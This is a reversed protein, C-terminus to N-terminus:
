EYRLAVIPDVRTSRWAPMAAAVTAAAALLLAAGAMVGAEVPSVGYLLSRLAKGLFLTGGLGLVVGVGTLGLAQRLVMQILNTRDAGLAMRIGIEQTRQQVLQGIVGYLGVAAMLTALLAFFGILRAALRQAALSNLVREDMSMLNFVPLDSDVRAVAAHISTAASLDEIKSKVVFAYQGSRQQYASYYYAGRGDTTVKDHRVHGVIGVIEKWEDQRGNRIRKGIPDENPWYQKALTEDIVVVEQSGSRDSERLWRGQKLPIGMAALYGPTVVRIDGHPSSENDRVLRGEIDFSSSNNSGSFPLSHVGGAAIVGPLSALEQEMQRAFQATQEPTTYKARPLTVQFSTVNGTRFGLQTQQLKQFSLVLLGAMALLVMSLAVEGVVIASRMRHRLLSGSASRSAEKLSDQIDTRLVRVVPALSFLLSTLIALLLTFVLVTGDLKIEELRPLNKPLQSVLIRVLATGLGLGAIGGLLGLVLSEVVLQRALRRNTAGMAARVAIERTRGTNRTLILNAVNACAILLVLGVASFIAILAPKTEGVLMDLLPVMLITWGSDPPYAGPNDAALRRSFAEVERAAQQMTLNPQVKAITTLFQNGRRQPSRQAATFQHPVYIECRALFGLAEPVIGVVTYPQENLRITRGLANAEGGFRRKWYGEDLVVVRPANPDDDATEILRGAVPRIGFIEFTGASVSAGSVREPRGAGSLNYSNLDMAAVDEFIHRQQRYDILDAPSTSAQLLNAKPYSNFLLVLREPDALPLPKFLVGHVVSFIATNAGIGLALTLVALLTFGPHLRLTRLALKLDLNM